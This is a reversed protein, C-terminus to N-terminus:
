SKTLAPLLHVQCKQLAQHGIGGCGTEQSTLAIKYVNRCMPQERNRYPRALNKDHIRLSM